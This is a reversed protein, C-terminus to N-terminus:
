PLLTGILRLLEELVPVALLLIMVRAALEVKAAIANEGADKCLQVGLDGICAVGTVKLAVGFYASNVGYEGAIRGAASLLDSIADASLWLLLVGAALGTLLALEPRQGKLLLATLAGTIGVLVIKFIDM